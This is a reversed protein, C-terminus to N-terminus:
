SRNQTAITLTWGITLHTELCACITVLDHHDVTIASLFLLFLGISHLLYMMSKVVTAFLRHSQGLIKTTYQSMCRPANASIINLQIM